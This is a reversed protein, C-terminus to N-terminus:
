KTWLAGLELEIADFPEARVVADDRWSALLLWRGGDLRYTELTRALPDVLWLHGVGEGAYLPMKDARDTAKTSDSLIECVWDPALEFASTQSVEPMRERRWGALDPVLVHGGRLHLEPEDLIIWGGPGGGKGRHFPGGLEIGLVSAALAHPAAPRPQTVLTGHILEAVLHDPVKRLDEYTARRKAPDGM